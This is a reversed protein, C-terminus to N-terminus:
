CPVIVYSSLSKAVLYIAFAQLVVIDSTGLLKARTLARRAGIRYRALLANQSEDFTARCEADTMSFVASGYIAFMLAELSKPIDDLNTSASVIAEQLTPQHVIKM